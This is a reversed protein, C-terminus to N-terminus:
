EIMNKAVENLCNRKTQSLMRYYSLYLQEQSNLEFKEVPEIKHRIDTYGIIYDVSTDFYDALMKLTGIGPEVDHNEYKNISQQSVKIVSALAQQSINKEERLKKLNTLLVM